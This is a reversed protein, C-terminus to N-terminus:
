NVYNLRKKGKKEKYALPFRLFAADSAPAVPVTDPMGDM